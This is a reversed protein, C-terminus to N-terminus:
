YIKADIVEWGISKVNSYNKIKLKFKKTHNPPFVEWITYDESGLNTKTKSYYTIRITADKYSVTTASNSITGNVKLKDGFFNEQYTGEANLFRTPQSREIEAITMKQEKYSKTSYDYGSSSGTGQIFNYIGAGGIFVAFCALVLKIFTIKKNRPKAQEEVQQKKLVPIEKKGKIPPPIVNFLERLEKVEGVTTWDSLGEYWVETDKNLNKKRLEEINFPGEEKIGNHLYYKGM